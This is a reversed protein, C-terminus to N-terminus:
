LREVTTPIVMTSAISSTTTGLQPNLASIMEGNGTAIGMHGPDVLIDGPEALLAAKAPTVANAVRQPLTWSLYSLTTPGHTSGDYSSAEPISLGLDHGIVWNVFSSCDWGGTLPAGGWVYPRGVYRMADNAIAQGTVTAQIGGFLGAGVQASADPVPQVPTVSASTNIPNAAPAKDPNQGSVLDRIVVSWSKGRLGSWLLIAGGGAVLLYGGKAPM